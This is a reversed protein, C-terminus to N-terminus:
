AHAGTCAPLGRASVDFGASLSCVAAVDNGAMPQASTAANVGLEFAGDYNCVRDRYAQQAQREDAERQIRAAEMQAQMEACSSLIMVSLLAFILRKM